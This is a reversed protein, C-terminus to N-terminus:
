LQFVKRWITRPRLFTSGLAIHQHQSDLRVCCQSRLSYCAKGEMGSGIFRTIVHSFAERLGLWSFGSGEIEFDMGEGVLNSGPAIHPACWLSLRSGGTSPRAPRAGRAGCRQRLKTVAPRRPRFNQVMPNMPHVWIYGFTDIIYRSIDPYIM